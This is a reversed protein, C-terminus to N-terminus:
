AREVARPMVPFGRPGQGPTVPRPGRLSLYTLHCLLVVLAFVATHAFAYGYSFAHAIERLFDLPDTVVEWSNWRLFRGIYIGAGTLVASGVVFAAAARTGWRQRVQSQLLDVSTLGLLLGTWAFAFILVIDYMLPFDRPSLLHTFDTMIYAANPLFLAWLVVPPGLRLPRRPVNAAWVAFVYPLWALFLNWRLFRYDHSESRVFRAVLLIACLATSLALPYFLNARLFRHAPVFKAPLQM